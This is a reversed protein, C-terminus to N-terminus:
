GGHPRLSYLGVPNQVDGGPLEGVRETRGAGSWGAAHLAAAFDETLHIANPPTAALLDAALDLPPGLLVPAGSFPDAGRRAVGYHGAIALVLHDTGLALIALAVTAAEAPRDYALGIRRGFWRPPARPTPGQAVIRALRALLDTVAGGAPGEAPLEIALLAAPEDEAPPPRLAATPTRAARPHILVQGRRGTDAWAAGIAASAGAEPDLGTGDLVLLQVPETCLAAAQLVALGMAIEAAIRVDLEHPPTASLPDPADELWRLGGARALCADFRGAWDEGFKVVSAERFLDTRAPLVLHLDCGRDLLAEAIVIDAGAALAGYAFGIRERALAARVEGALSPDDPAVATHGAFHLVRPPRHPDLWTADQGLAELILGFQRLTSAHDEWAQPARAMAEALAAQAQAREGRLLLAEARTAALYYPTDAEPGGLDLAALARDAGARAAAADGSLLSLAAANILPYAAGSIEGARGYARAAEQYLGRRAPGSAALAEDKLLRGRVALVQADDNVVELGAERFLRWAHQLAGSRAHAIIPLLPPTM